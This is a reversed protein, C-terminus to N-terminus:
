FIIPEGYRKEMEDMRKMNSIASGLYLCSVTLMVFFFGGFSLGALKLVAKVVLMCTKAYVTLKFIQGFTLHYGIFSDIIMGILAVILTAFLFIIINCIYALILYIAVLWNGYDILDYVQDKEFNFEAPYDMIEIRSEDKMLMTTADFMFVAEYEALTQMWESKDFQNIYSGYESDASILAGDEEIYFGEEISLEGNKLKFDPIEDRIFEKIEAMAEKSEPIVMANAIATYVLVAFMIYLFVKGGSNQLFKPYKKVGFIAHFFESFINM